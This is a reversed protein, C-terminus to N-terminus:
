TDREPFFVRAMGEGPHKGEDNYVDRLATKGSEQL